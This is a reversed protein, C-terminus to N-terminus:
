RPSSNAAATARGRRHLSALDIEEVAAPPASRRAHERRRRGRGSRRVQAHRAARDSAKAARGGVGIIDRRQRGAVAKRHVFVPQQHRARRLPRRGVCARAGRRAVHISATWSGRRHRRPTRRSASRAVCLPPDAKGTVAPSPRATAGPSRRAGVEGRPERERPNAALVAPPLWWASGSPPAPYQMKLSMATAPARSSASPRTARSATTSRSTWWPSPVAAIKAPRLSTTVKEICAAFFKGTRLARDVRSTSSGSPMPSAAYRATRAASSGCTGRRADARGRSRDPRRRGARRRGARGARASRRRGRRARGREDGLRADRAADREGRREAAAVAGVARRDRRAM